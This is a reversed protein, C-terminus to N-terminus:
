SRRGRIILNGQATSGDAMYVTDAVTTSAPGNQPVPAAGSAPLGFGSIMVVALVWYFHRGMPRRGTDFM